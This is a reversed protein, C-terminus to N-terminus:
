IMFFLFLFTKTIVQLGQRYSTGPLDVPLSLTGNVLKFFEPMFEESISGSEMTAIQKLSSLLAMQVFYFGLILKELFSQFFLFHFGM